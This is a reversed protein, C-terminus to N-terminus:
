YANPSNQQSGRMAQALLRQIFDDQRVPQLGHISPPGDDQGGSGTAKALLDSLLSTRGGGPGEPTRAIPDFGMVGETAGAGGGGGLGFSELVNGM